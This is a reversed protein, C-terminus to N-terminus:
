FRCQLGMNFLCMRASSTLQQVAQGLPIMPSAQVSQEPVVAQLLTFAQIQLRVLEMAMTTM